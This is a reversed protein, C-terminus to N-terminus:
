GVSEAYYPVQWACECTGCEVWWYGGDAGEKVKLVFRLVAPDTESVFECQGLHRSTRADLPGFRVRRDAPEERV